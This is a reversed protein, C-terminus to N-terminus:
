LVYLYETFMEKLKGIQFPSCNRPLEMNLNCQSHDRQKPKVRKRKFVNGRSLGFNSFFAILRIRHLPMGSSRRHEAQINKEGRPCLSCLHDNPPMLITMLYNAIFIFCQSSPPFVVSTITFKFASLLSERPHGTCRKSFAQVNSAVCGTFVSM